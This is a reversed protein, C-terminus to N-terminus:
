QGLGKPYRSVFLTLAAYTLLALLGLAAFGVMLSYNPMTELYVLIVNCSTVYALQPVLYWFGGWRKQIRQYLHLYHRELLNDRRAIRYLIVVFFDILPLTIAASFQVIKPNDLSDFLLICIVYGAAFCGCDGFYLTNKRSNFIAFVAIFSCSMLAIDNLKQTSLDTFAATLFFPLLISVLNLDAGDQFNLMNVFVLFSGVFLCSYGFFVTVPLLSLTTSQLGALILGAFITIFIRYAASIKLFDDFWYIATAVILVAIASVDAFSYEAFIILFSFCFPLLVGFGSPVTIEALFINQLRQWFRIYFGAAIAVASLFLCYTQLFGWDAAVIGLFNVNM